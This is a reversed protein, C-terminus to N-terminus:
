TTKRSDKDTQTYRLLKTPCNYYSFTIFYRLCWSPRRPVQIEQCTAASRRDDELQQEMLGVGLGFALFVARNRPSGGTLSRRFGAAQLQAALGRLSTRYYRYRSPLFARPQPQARVRDARLRAAIRGLPKYLGLQLVSRGLQLGRSMAHKVSM